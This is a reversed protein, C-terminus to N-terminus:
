KIKFRVSAKVPVAKVYEQYITPYDKKFKAGDFREQTTPAVYTISFVDNEFKKIENAEFLELLRTKLEDRQQALRQYRMEVAHLKNLVSLTKKDVAQIATKSM